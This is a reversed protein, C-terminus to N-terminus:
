PNPKMAWIRVREVLEPFVKEVEPSLSETLDFRASAVSFLVAEPIHSYLIGTLALLEPADFGHSIGGPNAARPELTIQKITGPPTDDSISAAIFAVRDCFALEEALDSTLLPCTLLDVQPPMGDQELAEVTLVGVADDGRLPNGYGIIITKVL